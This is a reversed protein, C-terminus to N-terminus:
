DERLDEDEYCSLTFPIGLAALDRLLGPSMQLNCQGGYAVVVDIQIETAGAQRFIDLNRAILRIAKPPVMEGREGGERLVLTAGGYPLPQGRYRGITGIDGRENKRDFVIGTEREVAGPSFREGWLNCDVYINLM